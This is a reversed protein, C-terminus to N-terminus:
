SMTSPRILDKHNPTYEYGLDLIENYLQQIDSKLGEVNHPNGAGVTSGSAIIHTLDEINLHLEQALQRATNYTADVSELLENIKM